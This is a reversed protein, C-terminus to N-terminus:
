CTTTSGVRNIADIAADTDAYATLLVSKVSPFLDKAEALLEVGSMGPMRQDAVVMAVPDDRRKLQRLADLASSGSGARLVRYDVAYHRKLDREVARLVERDDDVTLIVPRAAREDGGSGATASM